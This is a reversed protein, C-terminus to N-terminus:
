KYLTTDDSFHIANLSSLTKQFDNLYILFLLLGHTSGQSVSIINKCLSSRKYGLEVFQTRDSSFSSLWQLNKGRFGYFEAKLMLIEHDLTDLAKSFDLSIALILKNKNMAESANGLFELLADSTNHDPVFDM